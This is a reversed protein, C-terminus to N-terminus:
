SERMVDFLWEAAETYDECELVFEQGRSVVNLNTAAATSEWRKLDGHYSLPRRDDGPYFWKPLAWVSPRSSEPATLQLNRAFYEFVGAGERHVNINPLELNKRATYLTNNRDPSRHFHPHYQAWAFKERDCTDVPIIKGVQLWGWIVHRPISGVNWRLRGAEIHIDRFLGFFLFIDDIAVNQKRLHGQAAGTQGFLPVWNNMRLLSGHNIDPDLHAFHSDPIKGNTLDSVITGLDYEHWQIDRYRIPSLRDPIPLSLIRGDPFIPSPVGGSSSDFGKRSLIIKMM